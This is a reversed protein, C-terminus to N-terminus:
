KRNHNERAWEEYLVGAAISWMVFGRLMINQKLTLIRLKRTPFGHSGVWGTNRRRRRNSSSDVLPRVPYPNAFLLQRAENCKRFAIACPRAGPRHRSDPHYTQAARAFANQIQQKSLSEEPDLNLWRRAEALSLGGTPVM